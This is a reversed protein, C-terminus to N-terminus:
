KKYKVQAIESEYYRRMFEYLILEHKRNQTRFLRNLMMHIYSKVLSEITINRRDVLKKMITESLFCLEVRYKRLLIYLILYDANNISDKLVNEIVRKHDRYKENFQKSNHETFGFENKFERSLSIFLQYKLHLDFRFATLFSDIMKLAIMWRLNENHFTNLKTLLSLIFDSNLRFLDESIDILDYGYRELERNYTDYQIKWVLNKTVYKKLKNYLLTMVKEYQISDSLHFRVRLHFDPDAYRVFFWKDIRKKQCLEEIIPAIAKVLIRDAIKYGTYIKIYVWESGPIFTRQINKM